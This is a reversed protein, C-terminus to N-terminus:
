SSEEPSPGRWIEIGTPTRLVWQGSDEKSWEGTQGVLSTRRSADQLAENYMSRAPDRQWEPRSDLRYRLLDGYEDREAKDHPKDGEAWEWADTARLTVEATLEVPAQGDGETPLLLALLGVRLALSLAMLDDVDIRREGREIKSIVTPLMPRGIETLKASLDRQQLGRAKRWKAVNEAVRKAAPGAVVANSAM